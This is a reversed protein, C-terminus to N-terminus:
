SFFLFVFVLAKSFTLLATMHVEYSSPRRFKILITSMCFDKTSANTVFDICGPYSFHFANGCYKKACRPLCRYQKLDLAEAFM